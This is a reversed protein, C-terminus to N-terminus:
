KSHKEVLAALEKVPVGLRKALKENREAANVPAREAFADAVDINGKALKYGSGAEKEEARRVRGAMNIVDTQAAKRLVREASVNSYDLVYEVRKKPAGKAKRIFAVVHVTQAQADVTLTAQDTM